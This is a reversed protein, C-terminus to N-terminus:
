FMRKAVAMRASLKLRYYSAKIGIEVRELPSVISLYTKITQSAEAEVGGFEWAIGLGYAFSNNALRALVPWNLRMYYATLITINAKLSQKDNRATFRNNEHVRVVGLEEDLLYGKDLGLAIFKLYHDSLTIGSVEPM